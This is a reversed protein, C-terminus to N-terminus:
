REVFATNADMGELAVLAEIIGVAPATMIAGLLPVLDRLGLQMMTTWVAGITDLEPPTAEVVKYGSAELASGAARIADAFAPPLTVGPIDLALAVVQVGPAPGDLAVDVSRPDRVDRGTRV